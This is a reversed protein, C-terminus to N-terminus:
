RFLYAMSRVGEELVSITASSFSVSVVAAFEGPFREAHLPTDHLVEVRCLTARCSASQVWSGDIPMEALLGELIEVGDWAQDLADGEFMAAMHLLHETADDTDSQEVSAPPEELVPASKWDRIEDVELRLEILSERLLALERYVSADSRQDGHDGHDGPYLESPYTPSPHPESGAPSMVEPDALSSLIRDGMAGLAIGLIISAGVPIVWGSGRSM